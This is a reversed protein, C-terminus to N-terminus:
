FNILLSFCFSYIVKLFRFFDIAQGFNAFIFALPKSFAAPHVTKSYTKYLSNLWAIHQCRGNSPDSTSSSIAACTSFSPALHSPRPRNDTM